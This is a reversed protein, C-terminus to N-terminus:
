KQSGSEVHTLGSADDHKTLGREAWVRDHDACLFLEVSAPCATDFQDLFLAYRDAGGVLDLILSTDELIGPSGHRYDGCSSYGYGSTHSVLGSDACSVHINRSIRLLELEDSIIEGRYRGSFVPGDRQTQRNFQRAYTEEVFKMFAAVAYSAHQHLILDFGSPTLGHVLITAPYKQRAHQLLQVFSDCDTQSRFITRRDISWNYSHVIVDQVLTYPRAKRAMTLIVKQHNKDCPTISNM